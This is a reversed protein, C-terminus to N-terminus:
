IVSKGSKTRIEMGNEADLVLEGSSSELTDSPQIQFAGVARPWFRSTKLFAAMNESIDDQPTEITQGSSWKVVSQSPCGNLDFHKKDVDALGDNCLTIAQGFEMGVKGEVVYVSVLGEIRSLAVWQGM